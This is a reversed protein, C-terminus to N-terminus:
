TSSFTVLPYVSLTHAIGSAFVSVPLATGGYGASGTSTYVGLGPFRAYRSDTTVSTSALGIAAANVAGGVANGAFGDSIGCNGQSTSHRHMLGIWYQGQPLTVSNGFQLDVFRNGVTGFLSHAQNSATVTTTGYSYGATGTSLPASLTASVSSMSVAFSMSGSSIQSLTGANDSYLGFSSSITQSGGANTTILSLFQLLRVANFAFPSPAIVPAFFASASTAGQAGLTQNLTSAPYVPIFASAMGPNSIVVSGNSLGVSVGGVGQFSLSRVDLTSSSSQGTTNGAAYLGLTQATQVPVSVVVSGNTVGVSVGGVGAFVLSSLAITGTSSQTTNSAAYATLNTGGGGGGASLSLNVGASDVTMSGSVNAGNFTTGTGAYGRANLSIGSSNVTWTVNTQAVNLGVAGDSRMATTLYDTRVTATLTGGALGFSVGNSNSFTFAAANASTTGASLNVASILGATSPVTYSASIGNGGSSGFSIGNADRFTVTGSTFTADGVQVGSIGTQAGGVTPGSVWVTNPGGATTSQSVTVNNSGAFVWDVGTSVGTNGATNGTNSIGLGRIASQATQPANGSLSLTLGNSASATTGTLNTLALTPNGHSHNSQAATTLFAPVGLSLGATNHTGVVAAGTTTTSTFGTGAYGGANLSVGASNVTWTVNTQATNLGVADNSARATTVANHSGVITHNGAAGTSLSLTVGNLNTFALRGVTASSNVDSVTWSSNTITPVTYSASVGNAGSSGFSIGNANRFAVTGNTFTADSVQVGSVGTQAAQGSIWLTNPGGPATSQSVTVNNSGALIWDVGTSLGTNGATNGANVAGFGRIASQVTQTTIGNHSATVTSGNLGFSVGNSNSFVM